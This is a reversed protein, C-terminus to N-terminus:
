EIGLAKLRRWITTRNVGLEKAVKTKNWHNKELLFILQSTPLDNFSDKPHNCDAKDRIYHPLHCVCISKRNKIRVIAFEIINKLERVNGPYDWRLM